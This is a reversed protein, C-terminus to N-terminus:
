TKHRRTRLFGTAERLWCCSDCDCRPDHQATSPSESRVFDVATLLANILDPLDTDLSPENRNQNLWCCATGFDCRMCTDDEADFEGQLHCHTFDVERNILWRPYELLTVLYGTITRSGTGTLTTM